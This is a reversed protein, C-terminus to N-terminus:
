AWLRRKELIFLVLLRLWDLYNQGELGNVMETGVEESYVKETVM